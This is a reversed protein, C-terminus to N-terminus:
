EHAGTKPFCLDNLYRSDTITLQSLSVQNNERFVFIYHGALVYLHRLHTTNLKFFEDKQLNKFQKKIDIFKGCGLGFNEQDIKKVPAQSVYYLHLLEPLKAFQEKPFHLYFSGQGVVVDKLDLIGGGKPFSIALLNTKLVGTNKEHLEIQLPLFLYVPSILKSDESLEKEIEAMIAKPIQIDQAVTSVATKATETEHKNKFCATFVLCCTIVLYKKM